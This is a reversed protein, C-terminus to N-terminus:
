FLKLLEAVSSALTKEPPYHAWTSKFTQPPCFLEDWDEPEMDPLEMKATLSYQFGCTKLWTRVVEDFNTRWFDDLTLGTYFLLHAVADFHSTVNASEKTKKTYVTSNSSMPRTLEKPHTISPPRWLNTMCLPVIQLQAIMEQGSGVIMLCLAGKKDAKLLQSVWYDVVDPGAARDNFIDDKFLRTIELIEFSLEMLHTIKVAHVYPDIDAKLLKIGVNQQINDESYRSIDRLLMDRRMRADRDYQMILGSMLSSISTM